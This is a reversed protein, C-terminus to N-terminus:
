KSSRRLLQITIIFDRNSPLHKYVHSILAILILTDPMNKMMLLTKNILSHYFNTFNRDCGRSELLLSTLARTGRNEKSGGLGDEAGLTTKVSM